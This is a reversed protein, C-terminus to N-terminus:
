RVLANGILFVLAALPLSFVIFLAFAAGSRIRSLQNLQRYAGWGAIIWTLLIIDLFYSVTILALGGTTEFIDDAHRTAFAAAQGDHVAQMFRNHLEPDFAKRTGMMALFGCAMILTIVGTYYFHIIFHKEIDGTAKVCRWALCVAGGFAFVYLAFFTADESLDIIVSEKVFSIQLTWSIMFSITLFLLADTLHPQESSVRKLVFRKPESILSTADAIYKPLFAIAKIILDWLQAPLAELM